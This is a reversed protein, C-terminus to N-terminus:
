INITDQNKSWVLSFTHHPGNKFVWDFDALIQYTKQPQHPHRTPTPTNIKCFKYSIFYM